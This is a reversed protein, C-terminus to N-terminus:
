ERRLHKWTRGLQIASICTFQVGYMEAIERQFFCKYKLLEIIEEVEKETLKSMGNKSGVTGDLKNLGNRFSHRMNEKATAWELNELSNNQKNGDIHNIQLKRHDKNYNFHLMVLRHVAWVKGKGYLHLNAKVYGKSIVPALIRDSLSSYVRGKNSIKYFKNYGRIIRWEENM